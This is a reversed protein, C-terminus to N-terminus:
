SDSEIVPEPLDKVLKRLLRSVEIKVNEFNDKTADNIIGLETEVLAWLLSDM